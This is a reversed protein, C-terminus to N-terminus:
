KNKHKNSSPLLSSPLFLFFFLSISRLDTLESRLHRGCTPSPWASALHGSNLGPRECLHCPQWGRAGCPHCPRWRRGGRMNEPLIPSPFCFLQSARFCSVRPLGIDEWEALRHHKTVATRAPMYLTNIGSWEEKAMSANVAICHRGLMRKGVEELNEYYM